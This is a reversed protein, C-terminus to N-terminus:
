LHPRHRKLRPTPAPTPTPSVSPTPSPMPTPTPTIPPPTASVLPHPYNYPTYGPAPTGNYFHENVRILHDYPSSDFHFSGGETKTNNWEYSPETIQDNWGSPLTPPDTQPILSGQSRGPQDLAQIVNYIQFTSGNSFQMTPPFDAPLFTITNSTNEFIYSAKQIAAEASTKRIVYGKWQNATWPSGAVTVTPFGYLGGNPTGGTATFLAYLGNPDNVDWPNSGDMAGWPAFPYAARYYVQQLVPDSIGTTHNDHVVFVGSRGNIVYNGGTPGTFTNNYIEFARGGRMIGASDTGHIECHARTLNNYRFVIRAGGYCDFAAYPTDYM